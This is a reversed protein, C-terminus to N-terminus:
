RHERSWVGFEQNTIQLSKTIALFSFEFLILCFHESLLLEVVKHAAHLVSIFQSPCVVDCFDKFYPQIFGLIPNNLFSIKM